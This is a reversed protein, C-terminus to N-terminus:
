PKLIVLPGWWNHVINPLVRIRVPAVKMFRNMLGSTWLCGLKFWWNTDRSMSVMGLSKGDCNIELSSLEGWKGWFSTSVMFLTDEWPNRYGQPRGERRNKRGSPLSEKGLSGISNNGLRVYWGLVMLRLLFWPNKARLAVFPPRLTMARLIALPRALTVAYVKCRGIFCSIELRLFRM